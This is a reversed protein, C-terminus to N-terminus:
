ITKSYAWLHLILEKAWTKAKKASNAKGQLEKYWTKWAISIHGQLFHTWGIM